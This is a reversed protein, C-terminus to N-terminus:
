DWNILGLRLFNRKSPNTVKLSVVNKGPRLTERVNAPLYWGCKKDLARIVRKVPAGNLHVDFEGDLVATLWPSSFVRDPMDLETRLWLHDGAGDSIPGTPWTSDDYERERWGPGPEADSVKWTREQMPLIEDIQRAAHRLNRFRLSHKDYSWEPSEALEAPKRPIVNAWRNYPGMVIRHAFAGGLEPARIEQGGYKRINIYDTVHCLLSTAWVTGSLCYGMDKESDSDLHLQPRDTFAQLQNRLTDYVDQRRYDHCALSLGFLQSTNAMNGADGHSVFAPQNAVIFDTFRKMRDPPLNEVAQQGILRGYTKLTPEMAAYTSWDRSTSPLIGLAPDIRDVTYSVAFEVAPIRDAKGDAIDHLMANVMIGGHNYYAEDVVKKWFEDYDIEGAEASGHMQAPLLPETGLLRLVAPLYKANVDRAEYTPDKKRVISPNQPDVYIPNHFAGTKRNQWSLWWEIARRHNEPSYDPLEENTLRQLLRAFIHNTTVEDWPLGPKLYANPIYFFRETERYAKRAFHLATQHVKDKLQGIWPPMPMPDRAREHELYAQKIIETGKQREIPVREQFDM